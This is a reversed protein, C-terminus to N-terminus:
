WGQVPSAVLREVIKDGFYPDSGKCFRNVSIPAGCWFGDCTEFAYRAIAPAKDGYRSLFAKFIGAEKKADRPFVGFRQEIQAVVYDRLDDWGWSAEDKAVFARAESPRQTLTVTETVVVTPTAVRAQRPMTDVDDFNRLM